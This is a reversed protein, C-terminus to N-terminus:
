NYQKIEALPVYIDSWVFGRVTVNAPDVGAPIAVKVSYGLFPKQIPLPAEGLSLLKGTVKDYVGYLLRVNASASEDYQAVVYSVSIDSPDAPNSSITILIGYADNISDSTVTVNTIAKMDTGVVSGKVIYSQGGYLMADTVAEWVVPVQKTDGNEYTISVVAPLSPQTGLVTTLNTQAIDAIESFVVNVSLTYNLTPNTGAVTFADGAKGALAANIQSQTWRLTIDGKVDTFRTGSGYSIVNTTAAFTATSFDIMLMDTNYKAPFEAATLEGPAMTHNIIEIQRLPELAFCQWQNLGIGNNTGGNSNSPGLHMLVYKTEVPTFGAYNWRVTTSPNNVISGIQNNAIAAGNRDFIPLMRWNADAVSTTNTNNGSTGGTVGPVPAAMNAPVKIQNYTTASTGVRPAGTGAGDSLWHVNVAYITVPDAFTLQFFQRVSSNWTNLSNPATRGATSGDIPLTLSGSNGTGNRYSAQLTTGRSTLGVNYPATTRASVTVNRSYSVPRDLHDRVTLSVSYTGATSFVVSTSAAAPTAIMVGASPTVSWAYKLTIGALQTITASFNAATGATATAPSIATISPLPANPDFELGAIGARLAAISHPIDAIHITSSGATIAQVREDADDIAEKLTNYSEATYLAGAYTKAQALLSTLGLAAIDDSEPMYGPRVALFPTNLLNYATDVQSVTAADNNYVTQAQAIQAIVRAYGYPAAPRGEFDGLAEVLARAANGLAVNGPDAMLADWAAVFAAGYATEWAEQAAKLALAAEILLRLHEKGEANPALANIANNVATVQNTVQTSTASDNQYVGLATAIASQLNNFSTVTYKSAEYGRAVGLRTYLPTRDVGASVLTVRAYKTASSDRYYDPQLTAFNTNAQAGAASALLSMTYVNRNNGPTNSATDAYNAPANKQINSLDSNISQVSWAGTGTMALPGLFITGAWYGSSKDPAYDISTQFPMSLTVTDGALWERAPIEVYSSPLYKAAVEVGNLKVSVDRTAWWPIRIHMAVPIHAQGANPTVTITSTEAPWTCLQAISYGAADWVAKTQVMMNVWITDDSVFYVADTYRVANEVGTGGCCTSGPNTNGFPKSANPGVAYQYTVGWSGSTQRVSGILQNFMLREYYDMYEANDPDYCALDKSLKALNTACCTENITGSINAIQTYPTKYWEGTGVNGGYYRYRGANFDFFNKAIIYYFPNKNLNYTWLTGPFQPIRSNAHSNGNLSMIESNVALPDWYSKNYFMEAGSLLLAKDPDTAPLEYACRAMSENVGGYEGSINAYWTNNLNGYSSNGPVKPNTGSRSSGIFCKTTLRNSIWHSMDKCIQFSIQALARVNPDANDKLLYYCDMFGALQKHVGYYPAWVWASYTGYRENLILHIPPTANIYGYGFWAPNTNFSGDDWSSTAADLNILPWDPANATKDAANYPWTDAAERWKTVELDKWTRGSSLVNAYTETAGKGVWDLPYFSMEQIQRTETLSRDIKALIATRNADTGAGSAYSLALANIYHGAGHGRLKTTPSEWGSPTPSYGSTSLGFSRRYNYLYTLVNWETSTAAQVVSRTANSTLRNQTSLELSVKSMPLTKAVKAPPPNFARASVEPLNIDANTVTCRLTMPYGLATASDGTIWGTVNYSTGVAYGKWTAEINSPTWGTMSPPGNGPGGSDTSTGSGAQWPWITNRWEAYGDNYEVWVRYPLKPATGRPVDIIYSTNIDVGDPATKVNVISRSNVAFAPIVVTFDKTGSADGKSVTATLTVTAAAGSPPRLVTGNDWLYGSNSSWAIVTDNLGATPLVLNQRVNSTDGLSLAAIAAAVDDDDPAAITIGGLAPILSLLLAFALIINIIRKKSTKM